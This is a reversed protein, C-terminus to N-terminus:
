LAAIPHAQRNGGGMIWGNASSLAEARDDPRVAGGPACSSAQQAAPQGTLASRRRSAALFKACFRRYPAKRPSTASRRPHLVPSLHPSMNPAMIM